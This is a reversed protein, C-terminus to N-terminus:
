AAVASEDRLLRPWLAADLRPLAQVAPVSLRTTLTEAEIRIEALPLAVIHEGVGGVGGFRVILHRIGGNGCEIITEVVEGVTEGGPDIISRGVLGSAPVV